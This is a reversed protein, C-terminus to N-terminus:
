RKRWKASLNPTQKPRFAGNRRKGPSLNMKKLTKRVTEPSISEVYNMEVLRDGLMKLTWSNRGKPPESCCTAILFAEEEGQLKRSKHRTAPKRNLAADLGQEVLRRRTRYIKAVSVNFAHAIKEDIWGEGDEGVDAKLLVYANVVKARSTKNKSVLDLLYSREEGTLEVIYKKNAM